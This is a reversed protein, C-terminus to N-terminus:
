FSVNPALLNQDASLLAAMLSFLFVMYRRKTQSIPHIFATPAVVSPSLLAARCPAPPLHPRVHPLPPRPWAEPLLLSACCPAPHHPPSVNKPPDWLCCHQMAPCPPTTSARPLPPACHIFTAPPHALSSDGRGEWVCMTM